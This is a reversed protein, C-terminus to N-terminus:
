NPTVSGSDTGGIRKGKEGDVGDTLDTQAGWAGNANLLTEVSLKNENKLETTEQQMADQTNTNAVKQEKEYRKTKQKEKKLQKKVMKLEKSLAAITEAEKESKKDRKKAGTSKVGRKKAGAKGQKKAAPAGVANGKQNKRGKRTRVQVDGAAPTVDEGTLKVITAVTTAGANVIVGFAAGLAIRNQDNLQDYWAWFHQDQFWKRLPERLQLAAQGAVTLEKRIPDLEKGTVRERPVAGIHGVDKHNTEAPTCRKAFTVTPLGVDPVTLSLLSQCLFRRQVGPGALACAAFQVLLLAGM